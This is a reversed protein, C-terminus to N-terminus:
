LDFLGPEDHFAAERSPAAARTAGPERKTVSHESASRSVPSRGGTGTKSPWLGSPVDPPPDGVLEALHAVRKRGEVRFLPGGARPGLLVPPLGAAALAAGVPKWCEEETGLHLSYGGDETPEGAAVCWLRLRRGDLHFDPPPRKVAGRLWRSGISALRSSYATRVGFHGEITAKDWTTALGRQTFEGILVRVRWAADVVISVRATGGLRVVQGAGALLGDLDAPEPPHAEIGFISLQSDVPV